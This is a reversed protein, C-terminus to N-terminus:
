RLYSDSEGDAEGDFRADSKGYSDAQSQEAYTPM